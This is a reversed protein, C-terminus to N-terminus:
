DTSEAVWEHIGTNRSDKTSTYFRSVDAAADPSLGRRRMTRWVMAHHAVFMRELRAQDPEPRAPAAADQRGGGSREVLRLRGLM